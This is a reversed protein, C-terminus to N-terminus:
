VDEKEGLKSHQQPRYMLVYIVNLLIFVVGAVRVNNLVLHPFFYDPKIITFLTLVIFVSCVIDSISFAKTKGQGSLVTTEDAKKKNDLILYAILTFLFLPFFVVFFLGLLGVVGLGGEGSINKGITVLAILGVLPPVFALFAFTKALTSLIKIKDM